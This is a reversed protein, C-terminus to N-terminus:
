LIMQIWKAVDCLMIGEYKGEKVMYNEADDYINKTKGRGRNPDLQLEEEGTEYPVLDKKETGFYKEKSVPDLGSSKKNEEQGDKVSEKPRLAEPIDNFKM